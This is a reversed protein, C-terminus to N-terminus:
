LVFNVFKLFKRAVFVKNVQKKVLSPRTNSNTRSVVNVIEPKSTRRSALSNSNPQIPTISTTSPKLISAISAQYAKSASTTSGSRTSLM